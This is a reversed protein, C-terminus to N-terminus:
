PGVSQALVSPYSSISGYTSSAHLCLLLQDAEERRKQGVSSNIRHALTASNAPNLIIGQLLSYRSSSRMNKHVEFLGSRLNKLVSISGSPTDHGARSNTCRSMSHSPGRVASRADPQPISRGGDVEHDSAGAGGQTRPFEFRSGPLRPLQRLRHYASHETRSARTLM